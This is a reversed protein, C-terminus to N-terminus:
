KQLLCIPISHRPDMTYTRSHGWLPPHRPRCIRGSAPFIRTGACSINGLRNVRYLLCGAYHPINKEQITFVRFHSLCVNMVHVQTPHSFGYICITIADTIAIALIRTRGPDMPGLHGPRYIAVVSVPRVAMLRVAPRRVRRAIAVQWTIDRIVHHIRKQQQRVHVTRLM